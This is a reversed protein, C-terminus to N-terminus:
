CLLKFSGGRDKGNKPWWQVFLCRPQSTVTNNVMRLRTSSFRWGLGQGQHLRNKHQFPVNIEWDVLRIGAWMLQTIICWWQWTLQLLRPSLKMQMRTTSLMASLTDTTAPQVHHNLSWRSMVSSHHCFAWQLSAWREDAAKNGYLHGGSVEM